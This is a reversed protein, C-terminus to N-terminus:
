KAKMRDLGGLVRNGDLPHRSCHTARCARSTCVVVECHKCYEGHAYCCRKNCLYCRVQKYVDMFCLEDAECIFGGTKARALVPFFVANLQALYNTKYNEACKKCFNGRLNGPLVMGTLVKEYFNRFTVSGHSSSLPPSGGRLVVISRHINFDPRPHKSSALFRLELWEGHEFCIKLNCINCRKDASRNCDPFDCFQM